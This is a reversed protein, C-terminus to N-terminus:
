ENKLSEAPNVQVIKMVLYGLTSWAILVLILGSGAFILPNIVTRFSFNELWRNMMWWSFPTAVVIAIFVLRTFDKMLLAMLGTSSAGLIKRVCIEKTKQRFSLAAIGLLGFSAIVVALFSFAALVNGINKEATYQQNLQDKLFSFEFSFNDDFKRWTTEVSKMTQEFNEINAKILVYNFAPYLRFLIPRVPQHLSQFHFDKVIGIIKGKIERGDLNWIIEEGIGTKLHLNNKATENIIFGDKDAPNDVSFPQGEAFEISLAKFFDYDVLADSVDVNGEPHDKTFISHQNFPRGPINSSASVTKVGPLLLLENRLEVIRPNIADGNKVSIIIVEEQDFGLGKHQIFDLQNYIIVSSSILVMSTIFQFVTFVQRVGAGKPSQLYKGKLIQGPKVSSLYLSPYIGAVIGVIVSLGALMPIFMSYNIEFPSGIFLNLFPLTLEIMLAAIVMAFLSVLVAEGIFQFALQKRFAGLTKRIGIEKAREASLATTLNIFNVCAIVLILLAAATMMYIYDINGNPELEWRLNSKLHIDTIPQLRFGFGQQALYRYNDASWDLYKKSWDMLKSEVAKADSGPKLRIYNYHGFDKWTYYKSDPDDLAKERVYSVLFDFHFHSAAPVDQFVGTVEISEDNVVLQKGIPDSSGFYKKAISESVLIGKTSKLATTPDGKTLKFSFVKFFTSDVALVTRDDYRVDKELNRISFTQKTLGPGWIPTLSVASEVEPFDQVLAQAIPHPVRTQPNDSEWTIRYINEAQDHFQDYSLERKLYQFILFVCALGLALGFINIFSYVKNKLLNRFAITFYSALM